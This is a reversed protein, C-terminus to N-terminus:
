SAGPPSSPMKMAVTRAMTCVATIDGAIPRVFPTRRDAVGLPHDRLFAGVLRRIREELQELLRGGVRRDNQRRALRARQQRRNPRADTANRTAGSPRRPRARRERRGPPRWDGRGRRQARAVVSSTRSAPPRAPCSQDRAFRPLRRERCARRMSSAAGRGVAARAHADRQRLARLPARPLNLSVSSASVTSSCSRARDAAASAVIPSADPAARAM